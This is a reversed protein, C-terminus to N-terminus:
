PTKPCARHLKHWHCLGAQRWRGALWAGDGEAPAESGNYNHTVRKNGSQSYSTVQPQRTPLLPPPPLPPPLLRPTSCLRPTDAPQCPPGSCARFMLALPPFHLRGLRSVDVNFQYQLGKDRLLTGIEAPLPCSCTHSSVLCAPQWCPLASVPLLRVRAAQECDGATCGHM